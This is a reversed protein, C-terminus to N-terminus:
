YSQNYKGSISGQEALTPESWYAMLNLERAAKNVWWDVPLSITEEKIFYRLLSICADKSILYGDLCRGCGDGGWSTPFNSKYYIHKNPRMMDEPIHFGCGESFFLLDFDCPIEHVCKFLGEMFGDKFVCDDELVMGLVDGSDRISKWAEVHKLFLSAWGHSINLKSKHHETLEEPAYGTIFHHQMLGSAFLQKAM